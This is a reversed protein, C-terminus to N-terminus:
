REPLCASNALLGGLLVAEHFKGSFEGALATATREAGAGAMGDRLEPIGACPMMVGSISNM